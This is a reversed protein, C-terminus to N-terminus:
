GAALEELRSVLKEVRERIEDREARWAADPAGPEAGDGAELERVRAELEAIRARLGGVLEATERVREELQELAERSM